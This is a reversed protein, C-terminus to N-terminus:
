GDEGSGEIDEGDGELDLGEMAVGEENLVCAVRRGALGNVAVSVREGGQINLRRRRTIMQKVSRLQHANWTLNYLIPPGVRSVQGKNWAEVTAMVLKERAYINVYADAQLSEYGLDNYSGTAVFM